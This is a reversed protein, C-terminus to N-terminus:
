PQREDIIEAARHAADEFSLRYVKRFIEILDGHVMAPDGIRWQTRRGLTKYMLAMEVDNTSPSAFEDITSLNPQRFHIPVKQFGLREFITYQKSDPTCEIYWGEIGAQDRVMQEEIRPVILRCRGTGLLPKVFALYGGFGVQSLTFFSAMGAITQSDPDRVAWFHYRLDNQQQNLLGLTESFVRSDIKTDSDPFSREYVSIAAAFEDTQPDTVPLIDFPADDDYGVYTQLSTLTVDPRLALATAMKQYEPDHDPEDIRMAWKLYDFVIRAVTKGPISTQWTASTRRVCLLLYTVPGQDESLAPQVYPFEMVEYNWQGWMRAREFPDVNDMALDVQFPDNMEIVIGDLSAHGARLADQRLVEEVQRHMRSGIGQGRCEESVLIFELIGVNPGALYDFVAAAIVREDANGLLIHYSNKEGLSEYWGSRKATLYAKMNELSERENPDPFCPIFLQEYFQDLWRCDEASDTMERITITM